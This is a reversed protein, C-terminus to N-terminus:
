TRPPSGPELSSAKLPRYPCSPKPWIRMSGTLRRSVSARRFALIVDKVSETTYSNLQEPNDLTIWVAHLGDVDLGGGDLVPREEYRITTFDHDPDLDHSVYDM